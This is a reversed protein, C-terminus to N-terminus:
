RLVSENTSTIQFPFTRTQCRRPAGKLRAKAGLMGKVIPTRIKRMQALLFNVACRERKLSNRSVWKINRRPKILIKNSPIRTGCTIFYLKANKAMGKENVCAFSKTPMSNYAKTYKLSCIETSILNRAMFMHL